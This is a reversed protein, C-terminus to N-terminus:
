SQILEVQFSIWLFLVVLESEANESNLSISNRCIKFIKNFDSFLQNLITFPSYSVFALTNHGLVLTDWCLVQVKYSNNDWFRIVLDM